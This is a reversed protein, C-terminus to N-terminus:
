FYWYSGHYTWRENAELVAINDIGREALRAAASLGAMGAGIIIVRPQPYCIESDCPKIACIGRDDLIPGCNYIKNDSMRYTYSRKTLIHQLYRYLTSLEKHCFHIQKNNGINNDLDFLFIHIKIDINNM